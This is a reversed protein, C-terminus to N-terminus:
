AFQIIKGRDPGAAKREATARQKASSRRLLRACVIGRYIADPEVGEAAALSEWPALDVSPLSVAFDLQVRYRRDVRAAADRWGGRGSWQRRLHVVAAPRALTERLADELDTQTFYGLVFPRPLRM